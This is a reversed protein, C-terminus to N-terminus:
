FKLQTKIDEITPPSTDLHVKIWLDIDVPYLQESPKFRSFSMSNNFVIKKANGVLVSIYWEHIKGNENWRMQNRFISAHIIHTFPEDDGVGVMVGIPTNFVHGKYNM